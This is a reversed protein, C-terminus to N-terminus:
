KDPPKKRRKKPRPLARFTQSARNRKKNDIVRSTRTVKSDNPDSRPMQTKGVHSQKQQNRKNSTSPMHTRCANSRTHQTKMTSEAAHSASPHTSVKPPKNINTATPIHLLPQQSATSRQSLRLKKRWQKKDAQRRAQIIRTLSKVAQVHLNTVLSKLAQGQIGLEQLQEETEEKYIYGAMGLLITIVRAETNSRTRTLASTLQTHQQDARRQQPHPRTDTCYKIEVLTYRHKTIGGQRKTEYLTIDPVSTASDTPLHANPIRSPLPALGAKLQKRHSGVDAQIVTGGKDGARIADLIYMGAAHHRALYSEKMM